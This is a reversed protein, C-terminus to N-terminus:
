SVGCLIQCQINRSLGLIHFHETLRSGASGAKILETERFHTLLLLRLSFSRFDTIVITLKYVGSGFYPQRYFILEIPVGFHTFLLAHLRFPWSCKSAFVLMYIFFYYVTLSGKLRDKINLWIELLKKIRKM